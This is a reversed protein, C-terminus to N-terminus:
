KREVCQYLGVLFYGFFFIQISRDIVNVFVCVCVCMVYCTCIDIYYYDDDNEQQNIKTTINKTKECMENGDLKKKTLLFFVFVFFLFIVYCMIYMRDLPISRNPHTNTSCGGGIM